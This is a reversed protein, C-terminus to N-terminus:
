EGRPRRPGEAEQGVAMARSRLEKQWPGEVDGM